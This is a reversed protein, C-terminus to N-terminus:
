MMNPLFLAIQPWFILGITGVILAVLFPVMGKFITGLPVDTVGSIVYAMVGVPPTMLGMNVVIVMVVGFWIPDFGAAVVVPYFIPLTLVLLAMVEIFCGGILYLLIILGIVASATLSLGSVWEALALPIKTIAMFHGYITAGAMILYLMCTLRATDRLSTLFDRWFLTRRILAIILAGLAGIAGSETPTFIGIFLGGIVIIFLAVMEITGPLSKLKDIWNSTLGPPGLSPNYRCQIIVTIIFLASFLLGPLITAIFLKGISVSTLIGYIILVSSPPILPGLAGGAAISGTSLAPDYGYRKMEPFAARGMAAASANASACMAGFATCSGITAIALGGPMRGLFKHATDYLRRSAGSTFAISGMLIFMPATTLGYTTFIDFIDLMVFDLAASISVVYAFGAFGVFIMVFAVPIGSFLGIILVGLGILGTVTLTM